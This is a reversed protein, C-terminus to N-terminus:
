NLLVIRKAFTVFNFTAFCMEFCRWFNAYINRWKLAVPDPDACRIRTQIRSAFAKRILASGSFFLFFFFQAKSVSMLPSWCGNLKRLMERELAFTLSLSEMSNWELQTRHVPPPEHERHDQQVQGVVGVPDGEGGHGLLRGGVVIDCTTM